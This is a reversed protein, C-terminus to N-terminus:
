IALRIEYTHRKAPCQERPGPHLSARITLRCFRESHAASSGNTLYPIPSAPICRKLDAFADNLTKRPNIKERANQKHLFRITCSCQAEWVLCHLLDSGEEMCCTHM